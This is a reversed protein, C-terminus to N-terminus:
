QAKVLDLHELYSAVREVSEDSISWGLLLAQERIHEVTAERCDSLIFYVKAAISITNIDVDVGSGNIKTVYPRYPAVIEPRQKVVQQGSESLRYDFRNMEGFTSQVGYPVRTETVFGAEVLAGLSTSVHSSYPGYYHPRFGFEENALVSLFYIKKQLLTRGPVFGSHRSKGPPEVALVALIADTTSM